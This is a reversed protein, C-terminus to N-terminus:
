QEWRFVKFAIAAFVATIALLIGIYAVVSGAGMGRGIVNLMAENLYRLPFAYSIARMWGPSQDLPFFSGGLFAMPMVILQSIAQASEQTKAISGVVMGMALFALTGAVMVPVTMYWAGRLKLGFFPITAIAIFLVLQVVAIVVSLTIRAAFVDRLKVPSLQLRRLLGKTRWQVLTLSAGFIGSSAIAWGLLGPTFYQIPTLSVDEVQSSEISYRPPQGTAAQNARTIVDSFVSNVMGARTADTISYRVILREGDQRVSADADGKSVKDIAAQETDAPKLKIIDALQNDPGSLAQDLVPVPGVTLVDIKPAKANKFIGGFLILFMLPFLVIFFVASKDRLFGLTMARFTPAFGSRRSM